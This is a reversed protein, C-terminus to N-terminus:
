HPAEQRARRAVHRPLVAEDRRLRGELRARRAVAAAHGLAVQSPVEDAGDGRAAVCVAGRHVHVERVRRQMAGHVERVVVAVGHGREGLAAREEGAGVRRRADRRAALLLALGAAGRAEEEAGEPLAEALRGRGVPRELEGYRIRAPGRVQQRARRAGRRAGRQRSRRGGHKAAAADTAVLVGLVGVARVLRAASGAAPRVALGLLAREVGRGHGLAGHGHRQALAPGHGRSVALEQSEHARAARLLRHQGHRAGHQGHRRAAREAGHGVVAGRGRGERLAHGDVEVEKARERRGRERAGARASAQPQAGGRRLPEGRDVERQPRM